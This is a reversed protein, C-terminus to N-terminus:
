KVLGSVNELRKRKRKIKLRKTLKRFRLEFYLYLATIVSLTVTGSLFIPLDAQHINMGLVSAIPTNDRGATLQESVYKQLPEILPSSSPYNQSVESLDQQAWSYYNKSIDSLSSVFTEYTASNETSIQKSSLFSAITEAPIVGNNTKTNAEITYSTVGAFEGYTNIVPGGLLTDPLYSDIRFLSFNRSLSTQELLKGEITDASTEVGTGAFGSMTISDNPNLKVSSIQRSPIQSTTTIRIVALDPKTLSFTETLKQEQANKAQTFAYNYISTAGSTAFLEASLMRDSNKLLGKDDFEFSVIQQAYYKSSSTEPLIKNNILGYLILNSTTDTIDKLVDANTLNLYPEKQKMSSIVDEAIAKTLGGDNKTQMANLFVDYANPTAFDATTLIDGSRNIFTGSALYPLCSEFARQSATPLIDSMDIKTTVCHLAYLRVTTLQGLLTTKDLVPSINLEESAPITAPRDSISELINQAISISQNDITVGKPTKILITFLNNEREITLIQGELQIAPLSSLPLKESFSLAQEKIADGRPTTMTFIQADRKKLTKIWFEQIQLTNNQATKQVKYLEGSLIANGVFSITASTTSTSTISTEDPSYQFSFEANPHTYIRKNLTDNAFVLLSNRIESDTTNLALYRTTGLSAVFDTRKYLVWVLIGFVLISFFIFVKRFLRVASLHSVEDVHPVEM